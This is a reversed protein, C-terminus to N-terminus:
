APLAPADHVWVAVGNGGAMADRPHYNLQPGLHHLGFCRHATLIGRQDSSAVREGSAAHAALHVECADPALFIDDGIFLTLPATAHQLGFNRAVGQHSKPIKFYHTTPLSYHTTNSFISVTEEDDEGDHVVIVELESAITQKALHELTRKLIAPRKYTPIIVSLQAM